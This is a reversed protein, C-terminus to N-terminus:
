KVYPGPLIELIGRAVVDSVEKGGKLTGTAFVAFKTDISEDIADKCKAELKIRVIWDRIYRKSDVIDKSDDINATATLGEPPNKFAVNINKYGEALLHIPVMRDMDLYHKCHDCHHKHRNFSCCSHALDWAQCIHDPHNPSPWGVHDHHQRSHCHAKYPPAVEVYWCPIALYSTTGNQIYIKSPTSADEFTRRPKPKPKEKIRYSM